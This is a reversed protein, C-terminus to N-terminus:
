KITAAKSFFAVGIAGLGAHSGISAGITFIPLSKINAAWQEKNEEIYQKLTTEGGGTYGLCYPMDFDIGGANEIIEGLLKIAKKMGRAKGAVALKGNEVGMIPKLSIINALIAIAAPIRGGRKLYELTDLLALMVINNKKAELEKVIEDIDKGQDILRKAYQVLITQGIAVSGSDVVRVVDEYNKSALMASNYTGSLKKSVCIVIAKDGAEKVKKFEEEYEYPAPQSTKPLEESVSLKEYFQAHSIDVVDKYIETGFTIKLPIVRIDDNNLPLDTSSDTIIVIAM